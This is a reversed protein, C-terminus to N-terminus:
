PGEGRVRITEVREVVPLWDDRFRYHLTTGIMRLQELYIDQNDAMVMTM